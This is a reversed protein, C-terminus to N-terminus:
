PGMGSQRPTGPVQPRNPRPKLRSRSYGGRRTRPFGSEPDIPIGGAKMEPHNGTYESNRTRFWGGRRIYDQIESEPLVEDIKPVTTNATTLVRYATATTTCRFQRVTIAPNKRRMIM